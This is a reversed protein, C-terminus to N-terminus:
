IGSNIKVQKTGKKVSKINILKQTNICMIEIEINIEYHKCPTLPYRRTYM